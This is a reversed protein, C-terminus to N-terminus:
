SASASWGASGHPRHRSVLGLLRGLAARVPPEDDPPHGSDPGGDGDRWTGPLALETTAGRRALPQRLPQAFDVGGHVEVTVGALQLREGLQATVWEGWASRYGTSRDALEVDFPAVVDGPDLLGHKASLVFWPFDSRVAHERARAFGASRFLEDVPVPAPSTAGSSGILVVRRGPVPLAPSETIDPGRYRLYLGRDVRHLLPTRGTSPHGGANDTALQIHTAISSVGVDPRRASVWNILAARSFPEPLTAAGEAVLQWITPLEATSM